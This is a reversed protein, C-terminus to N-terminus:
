AAPPAQGHQLRLGSLRRPAPLPRPLAPSRVVAQFSPRPPRPGAARRATRTRESRSPSTVDEREVMGGSGTRDEALLAAGGAAVAQTASAIGAVQWSTALLSVLLLVWLAALRVTTGHM